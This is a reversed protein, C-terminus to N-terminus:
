FHPFTNCTNKKQIFSLGIWVDNHQIVTQAKVLEDWHHMVYVINKVFMDDKWHSYTFMSYLISRISDIIYLWLCLDITLWMNM